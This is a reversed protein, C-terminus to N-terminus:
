ITELAQLVDAKIDEFDEIGFSFRVLNDQFGDKLREERPIDWIGTALQDVLSECGGFSAALYPIKLADIFKITTKLDGDIEFSILGGIGTMQRKAILHEPHSPLGLYYVRSVKPHAELVQAMKMGTSNQQRVRLHMTKMGRILLYAANPNLTGGLLKHLNRIKSVLEMSGSISGALFDNHGGIYKTASHHVLDAGLALTKQNIPTAITADICVLTGRRHCIKSVLKIDVCRLFPNTPSETFFLSVEHNNVLTQLGAIDDSDIFTVTIGLKTLFNEMFIRTEKYCDKTAVIHGNTPVLALLMVNSAYMGSAMVLTSEAGELVSIKEELAMTTPNGYRAYEYLDIRKEKFDILETTDKFFYTTTNVVLTTISSTKM